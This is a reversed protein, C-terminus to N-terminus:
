LDRAPTPTSSLTDRDDLLIDEWLNPVPLSSAEGVQDHLLRPSHHKRCRSKEVSCQRNPCSLSKM